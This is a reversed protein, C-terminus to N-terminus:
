RCCCRREAPADGDGAENCMRARVRRLRRHPQRRRENRERARLRRDHVRDSRVTATDLLQIHHVSEDRVTEQPFLAGASGASCGGIGSNDTSSLIILDGTEALSWPLAGAAVTAGGEATPAPAADNETAPALGMLLVLYYISTPDMLATGQNQIAIEFLNSGGAGAGTENTLRILACNSLVPTCTQFM